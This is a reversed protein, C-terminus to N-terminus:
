LFTSDLRGRRNMFDQLNMGTPMDRRTLVTNLQPYLGDATSTQPPPTLPSVYGPQQPKPLSSNWLNATDNAALSSIATNIGSTMMKNGAAAKSASNQMMDKLINDKWAFEADLSNAVTNKAGLLRDFKQFSLLQDESGIKMIQNMYQDNLAAITNPDAGLRLANGSSSSFGREANDTLYSLTKQGYGSQADFQAIREMDFIQKPTKYPNDMRQKLLKKSEKDALFTKIAGGIAQAGGLGLGIAALPLM